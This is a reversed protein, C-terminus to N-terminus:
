QSRHKITIVVAGNAAKDGYLKTAIDGKFVDVAQITGAKMEKFDQQTAERGDVIYLPQKQAPTPRTKASDTVATIPSQELQFYIPVTYQVRVPRGNQNGPTWKPSIKLVRITEEASGYGPDRLSRINSLSGDKEVVFTVIVRGQINNDRMAAPYRIHKGLFTYFADIGDPFNPQIEVSTLIHDGAKLDKKAVNL